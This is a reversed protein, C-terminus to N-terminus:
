VLDTQIHGVQECGEITNSPHLAKTAAENGHNCRFLDGHARHMHHVRATRAAARVDPKQLTHNGHAAVEVRCRSPAQNNVHDHGRVVHRSRRTQCIAQPLLHGHIARGGNWNHPHVLQLQRQITPEARDLDGVRPVFSRAEGPQIKRFIQWAHAPSQVEVRVGDNSRVYRRNIVHLHFVNDRHGRRDRRHRLLGRPPLPRVAM